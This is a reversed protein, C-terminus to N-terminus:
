LTKLNSPINIDKFSTFVNSTLTRHKLVCAM